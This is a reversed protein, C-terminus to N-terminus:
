VGTIPHKYHFPMPDGFPSKSPEGAAPFAGGPEGHTGAMQVLKAWLKPTKAWGDEYPSLFIDNFRLHLIKWKGEEKVYDNEYMGVGLVAGGGPTANNLYMLAYWRGKATKGTPDVDVVGSVPITMHLYDDPKNGGIVDFAKQFDFTRKKSEESPLQPKGSFEINFDPSNSFLQAMEDFNGREVYYGYVRQLKIIENTDELIRSKEELAALRAELQKFDAITIEKM